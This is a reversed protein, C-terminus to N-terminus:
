VYLSLKEKDDAKDVMSYITMETGAPNVTNFAYAWLVVTYDQAM